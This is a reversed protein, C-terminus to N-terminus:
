NFPSILGLFINSQCKNLKVQFKIVANNKTIQFIHYEFVANLYFKVYKYNKDNTNNSESNTFHKVPSVVRIIGRIKRYNKYIQISKFM